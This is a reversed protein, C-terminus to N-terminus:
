TASPCLDRMYCGACDPGRPKCWKRGIEFCAFDMMGPFKPHVARAKYIVQEATADSACFGLRGFVRRVHVDASIDISYYDAFPIKFERALINAAMSAIKPGVGDFELFRYVVEASSPKDSWIRAAEGSYVDAIRRVTSYFCQSMRDVFRHLAVEGSMLQKGSMFEKIKDQSLSRLKEISFDGLQESIRYPILWAKEAKIQRDMVCGLVFAHPHEDLDNLLVDAEHLGTFPNLGRPAEFLTNGHEVLRDRIESENLGNDSRGKDRNNRTVAAGGVVAHEKFKAVLRVFEALKDRLAPDNVRGLIIYDLEKGDPFVVAQIGGRGRYKLFSEKGIGRRGGGVRGSHALFVNGSDDKVFLGACRRNFGKRPPNFECVVSLNHEVHPDEVGFSCCFRNEIHDPQLWVWIQLKKHWWVNATETAGQYGIVGEFREGNESVCHELRRFAEEIEHHEIIAYM